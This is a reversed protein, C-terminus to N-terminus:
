FQRQVTTQGHVTPARRGGRRPTERCNCEVLGAAHAPHVPSRPRCFRGSACKSEEM